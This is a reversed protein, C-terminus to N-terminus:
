GRGPAYNPPRGIFFGVGKEQALAHLEMITPLEASLIDLRQGHGAGGLTLMGRVGSNAATLSILTLPGYTM